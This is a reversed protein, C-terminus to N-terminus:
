KKKLHLEPIWLGHDSHDASIRWKQPRSVYGMLFRWWGGGTSCAAAAGGTAEARALKQREAAAMGGGLQSMGWNAIITKHTFVM